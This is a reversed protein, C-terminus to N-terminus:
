ARRARGRSGASLRELEAVREAIREEDSILRWVTARGSGTRRVTGARELERLLDLVQARDANSRAAIAVASLGDAEAGLMAELKGALLVDVEQKQGKARGTRARIRAPKRAGRGNSENEAASAARSLM